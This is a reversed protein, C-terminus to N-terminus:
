NQNLKKEGTTGIADGVRGAQSTASQMLTPAPSAGGASRTARSIALGIGAPSNVPANAMADMANNVSAGSFDGAMSSFGSSVLSGVINAGAANVAAQGSPVQGNVLDGVASQGAGVAGSVAAQRLVAQSVTITGSVAAGTLVASSGATLGGGVASIAVETKNIPKDPHFYKQAGIDIAGGFIAGALMIEAFCGDWICRGDPDVHVAPNDNAYDYRNFAFVNGAAPGVPDTATFRGVVPDYYRAQMYVLGSDSDDVHGTFGPGDNASGRAIVGYPRYDTAALMHGLVDANALVTGQQDIYYYTVVESSQVPRVLSVVSVLLGAVRSLWQPHGPFRANKNM